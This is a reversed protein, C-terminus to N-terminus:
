FFVSLFTSESNSRQFVKELSGYFMWELILVPYKQTENHYFGLCKVVNEHTFKTQRRIEEYVSNIIEKKFFNLPAKTAVDIEEEGDFIM